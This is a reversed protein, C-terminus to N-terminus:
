KPGLASLISEVSKCFTTERFKEEAARRNRIAINSLKPLDHCVTELLERLISPDESSITYGNKQPEFIDLIGPRPTTLVVCGSAYAEIISIPQGEQFSTPLCFIHADAFLRAKDQSSIVGHYFVRSQRSIREVFENRDLENNFGGAFDLQIRSKAADSLTEYAELLLLYGKRPTMGSVYLVRMTRSNDLFKKKVEERELFMFKQAFNPVAFIRESPIIDGFISSHSPGSVIAAGLKSLFHRNLKRLIPSREIIQQGFSGGHLHIVARRSLKGVVALLLLDKLNGAVSESITLYLRDANGAAGIVKLIVRFVALVRKPTVTGDHQSASSLDVVEVSHRCQLYELLVQAAISHGSIPPPLPAVYLINM